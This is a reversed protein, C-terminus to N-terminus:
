LPLKFFLFFFVICSTLGFKDVLGPSFLDLNLPVVILFCTYFRSATSAPISSVFHGNDESSKIAKPSLSVERTETSGDEWIYVETLKFLSGLARIAPVEGKKM